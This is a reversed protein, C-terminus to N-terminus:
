FIERQLQGIVVIDMLLHLHQGSTRHSTKRIAKHHIHFTYLDSKGALM